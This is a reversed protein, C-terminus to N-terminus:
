LYDPLAYFRKWLQFKELSVIALLGLAVIETFRQIWIITSRQERKGLRMPKALECRRRRDGRFLFGSRISRM